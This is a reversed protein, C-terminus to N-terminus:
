SDVTGIIEQRNPGNVAGNQTNTTEIVSLNAKNHLHGVIGGIIDDTGDVSGNNTCETVVGFCRGFIGGIQGNGRISGNNVCGSVTTGSSINGAIGGGGWTAIIEGENVCDTLTLTATSEAYGLIGGIGTAGKVRGLNTCSRVIAAEGRAVYGLIGGLDWSGPNTGNVTGYNICYEIVKNTNYAIGGARGPAEDTGYNVCYSVFGHSTGVVGGACDGTTRVTGYNVCYTLSNQAFGVSQTGRALLLASPRHRGNSFCLRLGTDGRDLILRLGIFLFLSCIPEYGFHERM